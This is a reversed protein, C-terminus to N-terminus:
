KFKATLTFYIGKSDEEFNYCLDGESYKAVDILGIGAYDSEIRASETLTERYLVKLEDLSKGALEKFRRCLDEKQDKTVYNGTTLLYSSDEVRMTFMGPCIGDYVVGHRLVNQLLEVGIHFLKVQQTHSGDEKKSNAELIQIVPDITDLSFDGNYLIMIKEEQFINYIEMNEDISIKAPNEKLLSKDLLQDIQLGFNLHTDNGPILAYQLPQLSKRAMHILGLAAGGKKSLKRNVLIARYQEKLSDLDMKSIESLKRKLLKGDSKSVQNASYIHMFPSINRVGFIDAAVGEESYETIGHRVINQFSESVLYGMKRKAGKNQNVDPAAEGLEIFFNTMDDDFKGQYFLSMTDKSLINKIVNQLKHTMPFIEQNRDLILRL